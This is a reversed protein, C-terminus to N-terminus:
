RLSDYITKLQSDGFGYIGEKESFVSFVTQFDAAQSNILEQVLREPRGLTHDAPFRDTHARCVEELFRFCRSKLKSLTTLLGLNHHQYAIWLNIGLELDKPEFLVKDLYSQELIKPTAIGFGKWRDAENDTIPFIRYLTLDSRNSLLFLVFWLNVQCFLDNEFWLCVEANRPLNNLKNLESVTRTKYEQPSVRYTSSIFMARKEWFEDLNGASVDGVILCERCVIYDPPITTQSLQTALSDGNLIHFPTM